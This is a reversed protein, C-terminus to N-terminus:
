RANTVVKRNTKRRYRRTWAAKQEAEVEHGCPPCFKRPRGTSRQAIPTTCRVCHTPKVTM